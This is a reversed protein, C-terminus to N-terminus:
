HGDKNQVLVPMYHVGHEDDILIIAHNPDADEVMNIFEIERDHM